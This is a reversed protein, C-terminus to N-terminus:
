AKDVEDRTKVVRVCPNDAQVIGVLKVGPFNLGKAVMQTGLLIDIEGRKFKGIVHELAGKKQVSDTDLREISYSPFTERIDEEILAQGADSCMSMDRRSVVVNPLRRLAQAVGPCDVVDSINGGCHCVYVGIRPEEDSPSLQTEQNNNTATKDPM